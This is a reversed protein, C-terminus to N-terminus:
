GINILDDLDTGLNKQIDYRKKDLRTQYENRCEDLIMVLQDAVGPSTRIAIFYKKTLDKIREDLESDTLSSVSGHLPHM